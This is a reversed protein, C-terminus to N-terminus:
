HSASLAFAYYASSSEAQVDQKFQAAVLAFYWTSLGM